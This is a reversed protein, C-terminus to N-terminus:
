DSTASLKVGAFYDDWSQHPRGVVAGFDSETDYAGERIGQYIGAIIPGFFDGLAASRDAVYEADNIPRYTIETGVAEGIREALEYQSLTSGSLNVTRGDHRDTTLLAAYAEALEPRTTYACRGDGASNVIEGELAYTAAYEVDPEIYIGNRGISWQLGSAKILDETEISVQVVPSFPTGTEPGQIGTFVIKRVGSAVAAEIVNRHQEIRESPASIGSVLLVTDVGRLSETLEDRNDYDGPRVEVGLHEAKEPTRALAVIDNPGIKAILASTVASGLQGSATTIAITM